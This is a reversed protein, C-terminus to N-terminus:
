KKEAGRILGRLSNGFCIEGRLDQPYLVAEQARGQALLEARLCGNLFGASLPPTLLVDGRMVFVNSRAGETIEGRENVFIVEDTGLRKVENEYLERWNTKHRLFLDRSDTREPSIAYTWHPPNFPLDHATADHCGAENLTLRVRLPGDRGAVAKELAGKAAARDFALGFVRASAEMRALHASLRVFGNEHRLTEILELPRRVTEFFQAKLLCEAYESEARSDQVVGGGIGLEGEDGWVTLTRIAVNFRASGDPAFHGIAGCYAGRPSSELEQLIEMARIKPAGTVSGCPFLARLIDTVGADKRKRATVTSVMTHLTPYTEVKFLDRVEVSGKEAIRSLDNRILDVIMLNEARDKPSAALAARESENDRKNKDQRPATGKMPRATITGDATLDFFLEPSLSLIQWGGEESFMDVYACHAAGSQARLQEYLARPEGAFAFRARFSLNAQYIDGAAIYDKVRAFRAAYQAEDWEPRLPGAYARGSAPSAESSPPGFVGLQLLPGPVHRTLRRELAYGLEYGLWGAVHHGQALAAEIAALAQPVGAVDDARIVAQPASFVRRPGDDLIVLM